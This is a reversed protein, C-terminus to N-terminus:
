RAIVSKFESTIHELDSETSTLVQDGKEKVFQIRVLEIRHGEVKEVTISIGEQPLVEGNESTSASTDAPVDANSSKESKENIFLENEASIFITDYRKPIQGLCTFIFGAITDYQGEPISLDYRENIDAVLVGGGILLDGNEDEICDYEPEDNEDFIDGVIEEIIDELTVVGDVGGHEDLVVTMHLKRKRFENLLEDIPKTGPIYYPQRMVKRVEFKKAQKEVLYPMVDRALLIGLVDDVREGRVPYRSFGTDLIIGVVEDLTSNVKIAIIDTRPTMVERAITESFGVVGRIMRAQDTGIETNSSPVSSFLRKIETLSLTARGAHKLSLGLPKLFLNALGYVSASLLYTCQSFIKLPTALMKLTADPFATGLTKVFLEGFIVYIFALSLLALAFSIGLSFHEFNDLVSFYSIVFPTLTTQFFSIGLYGIVLSCITVGLQISTLAIESHKLLWKTAKNPLSSDDSGEEEEGSKLPSFSVLAYEAAVFMGNVIILVAIPVLSILSSSPEPDM